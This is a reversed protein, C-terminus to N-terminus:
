WGYARKIIANLVISPGALTCADPPMGSSGTPARGDMRPKSRGSRLCTLSDSKRRASETPNQREPPSGNKRGRKM